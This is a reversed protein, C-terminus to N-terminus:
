SRQSFHIDMSKLLNNKEIGFLLVVLKTWIVLIGRPLLWRQGNWEKITEATQEPENLYEKMSKLARALVNEWTGTKESLKLLVM